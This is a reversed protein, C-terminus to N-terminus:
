FLFMRRIKSHTQRVYAECGWVKLFSLRSYKSTWIEYLTKEISKAPVRNLTFAATELAYSQFSLLLDTQSMMSRDIDLLTQNTRVSVGNWHPTGPPTLQLVIGCQKLHDSFKLSLYEGGHDSRLFKITKGLHNQVDNQFKKFKEFSKSKHRM